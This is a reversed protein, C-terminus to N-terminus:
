PSSAPRLAGTLPLRTRAQCYASASVNVKTLHRLHSWATHGHVVQVFFVQTMTVPDLCRDRWAYGVHHCAHFIADPARQTTWDQQFQKVVQTLTAPM